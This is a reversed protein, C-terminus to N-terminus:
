IHKSTIGVLIEKATNDTTGVEDEGVLSVIADTNATISNALARAASFFEEDSDVDDTFPYIIKYDSKGDAAIRLGTSEQPKDDCATMLVVVGALLIVAIIVTIYLFLNRSFCNAKSKM